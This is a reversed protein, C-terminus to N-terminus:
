NQNCYLSHINLIWSEKQHQTGGKILYILLQIFENHKYDAIRYHIANMMYIHTAWKDNSWLLEKQLTKTPQNNEKQLLHRMSKTRLTNQSVKCSYYKNLLRKLSVQM